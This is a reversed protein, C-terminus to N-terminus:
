EGGKFTMGYISLLRKIGVIRKPGIGEIKRLEKETKEALDDLNEFNCRLLFKVLATKKLTVLSIKMVVPKAAAASEEKAASPKVDEMPRPIIPIKDAIGKSFIKALFGRLTEKIEPIRNEIAGSFFVFVSVKKDRSYRRDAPMYIEFKRGLIFEELLGGLERCFDDPASIKMETGYVMVILDM